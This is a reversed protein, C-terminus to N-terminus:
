ASRSSPPRPPARGHLPVPKCNRGVSTFYLFFVVNMVRRFSYILADATNHINYEKKPHIGPTQIKRAPTESCETQELKM